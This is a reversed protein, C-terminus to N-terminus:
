IMDLTVGPGPSMSEGAPPPEPPPHLRSRSDIRTTIHVYHKVYRVTNHTRPCFYCFLVSSVNYMFRVLFTFTNLSYLMKNICTCQYLIGRYYGTCQVTHILINYISKKKKM